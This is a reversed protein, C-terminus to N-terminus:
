DLARRLILATAATGDPKPYYAKRQGVEEFGHGKYLAIAPTNADEVELFIKNIPSMQLDAYAANLLAKALGKGRMKKDTTITLLEAEDGALRFMAFGAIKHKANVAVYAPTRAPDSLYSMFDGVPWGAFFAAAHLKALSKADDLQAREIHLGAPALWINM